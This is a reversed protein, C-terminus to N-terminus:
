IVMSGHQRMGKVLQLAEIASQDWLVVCQHVNECQDDHSHRRIATPGLQILNLRSQQRSGACGSSHYTLHGNSLDAAIRRTNIEQHGVALTSNSMPLIYLIM